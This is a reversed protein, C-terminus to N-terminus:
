PVLFPSIPKWGVTFMRQLVQFTFVQYQAVQSGAARRCGRARTGGPPPDELSTESGRGVAPASRSGARARKSSRRRRATGPVPRGATATRGSGRFTAPRGRGSRGGSPARDATAPVTS